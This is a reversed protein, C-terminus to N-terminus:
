GNVPAAGSEAISERRRMARLAAIVALLGTFVVILLALVINNLSEATGIAAIKLQEAPVVRQVYRFTNILGVSCGLVGSLLTTVGLSALLPVYRREPRFIVLVGTVLLFFGFLTTPYMGFGGNHYFNSWM